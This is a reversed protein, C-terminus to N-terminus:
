SVAVFYYVNQSTLGDSVTVAVTYVGPQISSASTVAVQLVVPGGGPAIANESPSIRLLSPISSENESDSVAVKLTKTWSGNLMVSFSANGGPPLIISRDGEAALDFGPNYNSDVFGIYNGLMSTFWLGGGTKAITLDAQIKSPSEAPPNSESYETLTNSSSNLLAIKNAYHENFWVSDGAADVFYPLTTYTYNITSTPFTTWVGTALNYMVVSSAGHQSVWVQPGSASVSTPEVVHFTGGIQHTLISGTANAPDFSYLHGFPKQPNLGVFYAYSSNVFYVQIPIEENLTQVGFVQVSLDPMVRGLIPHTTLSTFWLSGDPSSALTYPLPATKSVNLVTSQGTGPNVGVLLGEEEDSAWAQGNWIVVGWIGTRYGCSERTYWGATPWPYEVLTGNGPFFHAIGPVTQEGFWVSGDSAAAIGNPMRAQGPLSYESVGGFSSKELQSRLVRTGGLPLCQTLTGSSSTGGTGPAKTVQFLEYGAFTGGVIILALVVALTSNSGATGM